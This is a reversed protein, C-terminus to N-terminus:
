KLVDLLEVGGTQSYLIDLINIVIYFTLLWSISMSEEILSADASLLCQM